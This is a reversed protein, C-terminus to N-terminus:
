SIIKLGTTHSTQMVKSSVLNLINFLILFVTFFICCRLVARIRVRMRRYLRNRSRTVLFAFNSTRAWTWTADNSVLEYPKLPGEVMFVIKKIKPGLFNM